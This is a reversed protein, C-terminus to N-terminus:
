DKTVTTASVKSYTKSIHNVLKNNTSDYFNVPFYVNSNFLAFSIPIALRILKTKKTVFLFKVGVEIKFEVNATFNNLVNFGFDYSYNLNSYNKNSGINIEYMMDQVAKKNADTTVIDIGNIEETVMSSNDDWTSKWTIENKNNIASVRDKVNQANSTSFMSVLAGVSVSSTKNNVTLNTYYYNENYSNTDAILTKYDSLNFRGNFDYSKMVLNQLLSKIFDYYQVTTIVGISGREQNAKGYAKSIENWMNSDDYYVNLGYGVSYGLYFNSQSKVPEFWVESNDGTYTFNFANTNQGGAGFKITDPIYRLLYKRLNMIQSNNSGIASIVTDLTNSSTKVNEDILKKLLVKYASEPLLDKIKSLDLDVENIISFSVKYEYTITIKNDIKTVIPEKVWTKTFSLNEYRQTYDTAYTANSKYKFMSAAFNSFSTVINRVTDKSFGENDTFLIKIYDAINTTSFISGLFDVLKQKNETSGVLTDYISQYAGDKTAFIINLINLINDLQSSVNKEKLYSIIAQYNDLIINILPKATKGEGIGFVDENIITQFQTPLLDIYEKIAKYSANEETMNETLDSILPNIFSYENHYNTKLNDLITQKNAVIVSLLSKNSINTTSGDENGNIAEILVKQLWEPIIQLNGMIEVLYSAGKQILKDISIDQALLSLLNNSIDAYFFYSNMNKDVNSEILSKSNEVTVNSEYQSKYQNYLDFYSSKDSLNSFSVYFLKSYTGQTPAFEVNFSSGNFTVAASQVKWGLYYKDKAVGINPLMVQNSVKISLTGSFKDALNFTKGFISFTGSKNTSVVITLDFSIKTKNLIINDSSDINDFSLNSINANTISFYNSNDCYLKKFFGLIDAKAYDSSNTSNGYYNSSSFDDNTVFDSTNQVLGYTNSSVTKLTLGTVDKSNVISTDISGNIYPENGSNINSNNGKNSNSSNNNSTGSNSNNSESSSNPGNNTNSNSSSSNSDVFENAPGNNSNNTNSTTTNNSCSALPLVSSTGIISLALLKYKKSIKM